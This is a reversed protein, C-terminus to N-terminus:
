TLIWGDARLVLDRVLVLVDNMLLVHIQRKDPSFVGLFCFVGCCVECDLDKRFSVDDIM